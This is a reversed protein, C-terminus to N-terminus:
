ATACSCTAPGTSGAARISCSRAARFLNMGAQTRGASATVSRSRLSAVM